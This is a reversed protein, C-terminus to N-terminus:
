WELGSILREEWDTFVLRELNGEQSYPSGDLSDIYNGASGRNIAMISSRKQFRCLNLDALIHLAAVAELRSIDLERNMDGILDSLRCRNGPLRLLHTLVQNVLGVNPYSRELFQRNVELASRDFAVGVKDSGVGGIRAALVQLEYAGFPSDALVLEDFVKGHSSEVTHTGDSVLAGSRNSWYKRRLDIRQRMDALGSEIQLDPYSDKLRRITGPLNAYVLIRGHTGYDENRSYFIRDHGRGIYIVEVQSPLDYQSFPTLGPGLIAMFHINPPLQASKLYVGLSSATMLYIGALGQKLMEQRQRREEPWLHGTIPVISGRRFCYNIAAQQKVQCRLTPYVFIVPRRAAIEDVARRMLEPWDAQSERGIIRDDGAFAPKIDKVKLQITKKGIYFNEDVEFLLDQSCYPFTEELEEARNFAIGPINGSGIRMRLHPRNVGVRSTTHINEGRLVFAPVPNGEGFPELQSLEAVLAPKIDDEAIELDFQYRRDKDAQFGTAAAYSRLGERMKELDDHHLSLGAAMKHGGFSLLSSRVNDLAMYLDFGEGSRASGKGIDGTWSIVIAPRNYLALLRSAVIGVVGVNWDAGGVIIVPEQDLAMRDITEVAAHFIDDEVRRRESNMQGLLRAQDRAQVPDRSMLLDIGIRATDMRGAANLRPGLVFGLQWAKLVQGTLGAEDILARLGIRQTDRLVALGYKTIIRNEEQLPVMDAVTALAALALWEQLQQELGRGVALATALKFAV